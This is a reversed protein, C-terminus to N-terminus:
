KKGKLYKDLYYDISAQPDLYIMKHTIPAVEFNVIDITENTSVNPVTHRYRETKLYRYGGHTM